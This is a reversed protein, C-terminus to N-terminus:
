FTPFLGTVRKKGESLQGQESINILHQQYKDCPPPARARFTISMEMESREGTVNSNQDPMGTLQIEM